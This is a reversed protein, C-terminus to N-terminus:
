KSEGEEKENLLTQIIQMQGAVMGVSNILQQKQKELENLMKVLEEASMQSIKKKQVEQLM